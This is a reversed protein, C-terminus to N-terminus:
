LLRQAIEVLSETTRDFTFVLGTWEGLPIHAVVAQDYWRVAADLEGFDYLPGDQEPESLGQMIFTRVRTALEAETFGDTVDSRAYVVEHDEGGYRVIVRLADDRDALITDILERVNEDLSDIDSDLGVDGVEVAADDALGTEEIDDM